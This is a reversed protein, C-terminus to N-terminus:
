EAARIGTESAVMESSPAAESAESPDAEGESPGARRDSGASEDESRPSRRAPRRGRRRGNSTTEPTEIISSGDADDEGIVTMGEASVEGGVAAVDEAREEESREEVAREEPQREETQRDENRSPQSASLIRMYHEAHQLFAEALVRDGSTAKDRALSQYKEIIQQPTGRM